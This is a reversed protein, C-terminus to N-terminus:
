AEIKSLKAFAVDIIPTGKFASTEHTALAKQM